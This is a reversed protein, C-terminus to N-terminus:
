VVGGIWKASSGKNNTTSLGKVDPLERQLDASAKNFFGSGYSNVGIGNHFGGSCEGNGSERRCFLLVVILMAIDIM